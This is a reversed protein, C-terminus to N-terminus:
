ISFQVSLTYKILYMMKNCILYQWFKHVKPRLNQWGLIRNTYIKSMKFTQPALVNNTSAHHHRYMTSVICPQCMSLPAWTTSGVFTVWGNGSHTGQGGRTSNGAQVSNTRWEGAPQVASCKISSCQVARSEKKATTRQVTGFSRWAMSWRGTEGTSGALQSIGM